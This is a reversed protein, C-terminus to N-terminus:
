SLLKWVCIFSVKRMERPIAQQICFIVWCQNLYHSPATMCCTMARALTLWSRNRKLAASLWLSHVILIKSTRYWLLEIKLKTMNSFIQTQNNPTFHIQIHRTSTYNMYILLYVLEKIKVYKINFFQKTNIGSVLRTHWIVLGPFNSTLRIFTKWPFVYFRFLSPSHVM